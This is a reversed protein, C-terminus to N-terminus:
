MVVASVNKVYGYDNRYGFNIKDGLNASVKLLQKEYPRLFKINDHFGVSKGNVSVNVFSISFPTNNFVEIENSNHRKWSVAAFDFEMGKLKEPRYILVSKFRYALNLRNEPLNKDKEPVSHAVAWFVSERDDPLAENKRLGVRFTSKKNMRLVFPQSLIAETKEKDFNEVWTQVLWSKESGSNDLTYGGKEGHMIIRSESIGFTSIKKQATAYCANIFMCFFLIYYLLVKM